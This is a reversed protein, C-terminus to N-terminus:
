APEHLGQLVRELTQADYGPWQRKASAIVRSTSSSSTPGTTPSRAGDELVLAQARKPDILTAQQLYQKNFAPNNYGTDSWCYWQANTM